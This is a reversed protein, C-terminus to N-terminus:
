FEAKEESKNKKPLYLPLACFGFLCSGAAAGNPKIRFTKPGAAARILQRM